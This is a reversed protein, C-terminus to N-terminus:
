AREVTCIRNIDSALAAGEFGSGFVQFAVQWKWANTHPDLHSPTLFGLKKAQQDAPFRTLQDVPRLRLHQELAGDSAFRDREGSRTM